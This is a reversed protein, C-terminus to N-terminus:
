RSGAGNLEARARLLARYISATKAAYASWTFASARAIAAERRAAWADPQRRRQDLLGAIAAVWADVDGATCYVAAGGGAERLASLDSAVVPTGCALSEIVPLGFGEADSPLVTLAARRYLAALVPYSIPPAVWTSEILGLEKSLRAQEPTFPGGVRVLRARPAIHKVGAFICLLVDIRKRPITSGVHLIEPADPDEAGLLRAAEADSTTEPTATCAPHVGYPIVSLRDPSVLRRAALEDRLAATSCIVAAASRMGRLIRGTMARFVASRRELEPQLLCRFADLDHCTVITRSAPLEHVLHAYSHDVIHFLDFGARCARLRLPYAIFRNLAREANIALRTRSVVPLRTLTRAFRPRMLVTDLSRAHEAALREALMDAVLDMSRWGEEAFDAIIAIRPIARPTGAPAVAVRAAALNTEAVQPQMAM